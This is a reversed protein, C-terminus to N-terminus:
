NRRTIKEGIVSLLLLNDFLQGSIHGVRVIHRSAYIEAYAREDIGVGHDGPVASIDAALLM